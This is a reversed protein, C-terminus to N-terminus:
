QRKTSAIIKEYLAIHANLVDDTNFDKRIHETANYSLESTNELCYNIGQAFDNTDFCPALYDTKKNFIFVSKRLSMEITDQCCKYQASM